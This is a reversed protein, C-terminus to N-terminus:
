ATEAGEPRSHCGFPEYANQYAQLLDAVEGERDLADGNVRLHVHTAGKADIRGILAADQSARVALDGHGIFVPVWLNEENRKTYIFLGDRTPVTAHREYIYFVYHAGSAGTWIETTDIM